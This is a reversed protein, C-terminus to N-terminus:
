AVMSNTWRQFAFTFGVDSACVSRQCDCWCPSGLHCTGFFAVKVDGGCSSCVLMWGSPFFAMMGRVCCTMATRSMWRKTSSVPSIIQGDNEAQM